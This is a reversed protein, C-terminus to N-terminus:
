VAMAQLAAGHVPRGDSVWHSLVNPAFLRESALLGAGVIGALPELESGRVVLDETTLSSCRDLITERLLAISRPGARLVGGGMVVVGPNVMSVVSAVVEALARVGRDILELVFPDGRTGLSGIDGLVLKGHKRLISALEVSADARRAAEDLLARGSAVTELCGTRGCVCLAGPDDTVRIHGIDGAAGRDGRVVKGDTILAAELNSGVALFLMDRRLTESKTWEGLAMLNSVKDVWVPADFRARLWGRPNFGKWSPLPDERLISSTRIDVSGTVGLGIGWPRQVGTKRSLVAFETMLRNMTAEPGQHADWDQHRSAVVEGNLDLVACTFETPEVVAGYVHGAVPNFELLRPQRGGGSPALEGLRLLGLEIAQDVRQTVVKRSLGTAEVLQPRTFAIGLRVQDVILALPTSDLDPVPGLVVATM